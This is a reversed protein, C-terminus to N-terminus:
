DSLIAPRQHDHRTPSGSTAHSCAKKKQKTGPWFSSSNATQGAQAPRRSPGTGRGGHHDHGCGPGPGQRSSSGFTRAVPGAGAPSNSWAVSGGVTLRLHSSRAQRQPPPGIGISGDDRPDENPQGEDRPDENRADSSSRSRTTAIRLSCITAPRRVLASSSSRAPNAYVALLHSSRRFRTWSRGTVRRKESSRDGAAGGGGGWTWRARGRRTGCRSGIASTHKTSMTALSRTSKRAGSITKPTTTVSM